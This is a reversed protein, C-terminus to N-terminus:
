PQQSDDVEDNLLRLKAETYILEMNLFEPNFKGAAITNKIRKVQSNLAFKIKEKLLKNQEESINQNDLLTLLIETERRLLQPAADIDKTFYKNFEEEGKGTISYLTRRLGGDSVLKQKIVCEAKELRNLAPIVAGVSVEVFPSFNIDIYKKIEYINFDGLRLIYLILFENM